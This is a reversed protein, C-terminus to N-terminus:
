KCTIYKELDDNVMYYWDNFTNLTFKNSGLYYNIGVRSGEQYSLMIIYKKSEMDKNSILFENYTVADNLISIFNEVDKSDLLQKKPWMDISTDERPGLIEIENVGEFNLKEPNLSEPKIISREKLSVVGPMIGTHLFAGVIEEQSNFLINAVILRSREHLSEEKLRYKYVNVEKNKYENLDLGIKNSANCFLEFLLGEELIIKERDLKEEINLNYKNIFSRAKYDLDEKQEICAFLNLVISLIMFVFVVKKRKIM